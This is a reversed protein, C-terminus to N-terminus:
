KRETAAGALYHKEEKKEKTKREREKKKKREESPTHQNKCIHKFYPTNNSCREGNMSVHLPARIM